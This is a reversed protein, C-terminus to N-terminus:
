RRNEVLLRSATIGKGQIPEVVCFARNRQPPIKFTPNRALRILTQSTDSTKRLCRTFELTQHAEEDSLLEITDRLIDKVSNMAMVRLIEHMPPEFM